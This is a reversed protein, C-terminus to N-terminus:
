PKEVRGCTTSVVILPFCSLRHIFSVCLENVPYGCGQGRRSSAKRARTKEKLQEELNTNLVPLLPYAPRSETSLRSKNMSILSTCVLYIRFLTGPIALVTIPYFFLRGTKGSKDVKAIATIGISTWMVPM